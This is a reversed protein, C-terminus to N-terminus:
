TWGPIGIIKVGIIQLVLVSVFIFVLGIIASTIVEKGAAIKEPVGGSMVIQAAGFLILLFAIGGAIGTGFKLVYGVLDPPDNPICGLSTWTGCSPGLNFMGVCRAQQFTGDPKIGTCAECHSRDSLNKCPDFPSNAPTSTPAGNAICQNSTDCSDGAKCAWTPEYLVDLAAAACSSYKSPACCGGAINSLDVIGVNGFNSCCDVAWSNKVGITGFFIISLFIILALKKMFYAIIM